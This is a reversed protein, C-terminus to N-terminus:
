QITFNHKSKIRMKMHIKATRLCTYGGSYSVTLFSFPIYTAVDM